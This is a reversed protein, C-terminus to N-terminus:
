DALVEKVIESADLMRRVKEIWISNFTVNPSLVISCFFFEGYKEEQRKEVM